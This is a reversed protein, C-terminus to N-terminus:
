LFLFVSSAIACESLATGSGTVLLVRHDVGGNFIRRLKDALRLLGAQYDPDRHSAEPQVLAGKVRASTAVPGPNLLVKRGRQAM